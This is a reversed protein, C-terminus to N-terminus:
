ARYVRYGSNNLKLSRFSHHDIHGTSLDTLGSNVNGMEVIEHEILYVEVVHKSQHGHHIIDGDGCLYCSKMGPPKITHFLQVIYSIFHRGIRLPIDM